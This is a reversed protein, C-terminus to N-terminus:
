RGAEAAHALAIPLTLIEPEGYTILVTHEYHSVWGGDKTAIHWGDNIVDYGGASIMPEIALTMGPALRPGHGPKGFNPVEPDEHMERGIGHGCLARIVQYGNSEAWAQVSSGIDSLRHGIKMQSVGKWFCEETVDILRKAEPSVNGVGITYASDAQWGDLVLGCDLGLICGEALPVDNPIGHVVVENVSTCLSAPFGEYGLFSPTAGADTIMRHAIKNLYMTTVGPKVYQRLEALVSYLLRGAARMKEIQADNKISIM